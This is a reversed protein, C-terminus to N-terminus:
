KFIECFFQLIKPNWYNEALIGLIVCIISIGYIRKWVRTSWANWLCRILLWIAFGYCLYHPFMSIPLYLIGLWQEESFIAWAAILLLISYIMGTVIFATKMSKRSKCFNLSVLPGLRFILLRLLM